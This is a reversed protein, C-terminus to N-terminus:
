VKPEGREPAAAHDPDAGPGSMNVRELDRHVVDIALGLESRLAAAVREAVVVSRHRGGTCGVAITLNSKGEARYRPILFKLLGLLRTLFARTDRHEM